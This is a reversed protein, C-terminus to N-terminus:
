EPALPGCPSIQLRDARFQLEKELDRVSKAVVDDGEKNGELDDYNDLLGVYLDYNLLLTRVSSAVRRPRDGKRLQSRRAIAVKRQARSYKAVSKETLEVVAGHDPTAGACRDATAARWEAAPDPKPPTTETPPAEGEPEEPADERPTAEEGDSASEDTAGSTSAPATSADGSASSPEDKSGCAAAGFALLLLTLLTAIRM